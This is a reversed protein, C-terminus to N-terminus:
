ISIEDNSSVAAVGSGQRYAPHFALPPPPPVTTEDGNDGAVSELETDIESDHAVENVPTLSQDEQIQSRIPVRMISGKANSANSWQHDESQESEDRNFFEGDSDNVATPSVGNAAMTKAMDVKKPAPLFTTDNLNSNCNCFRSTCKHVDITNAYPDDYDELSNNLNNSILSIDEQNNKRRMKRAILFALAILAAIAALIGFAAGASMDDKPQVVVSAGAIIKGCDADSNRYEANTVGDIESYDNGDMSEKIIGSGTCADIFAAAAAEAHGDGDWGDSAWDGAPYVSMEGKVVSCRVANGDGCWDDDLLLHFIILLM